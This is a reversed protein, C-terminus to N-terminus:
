GELWVPCEFVGDSLALDDKVYGCKACAKSSNRPDVFVVEKGYKEMQYKVIGRLEHFAVDHLRMRLGRSSKGILQKVSIDEMVVVDYHEAFYKGLKM